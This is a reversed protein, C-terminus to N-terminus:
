THSLSLVFSHLGVCWATPLTGPVFPTRHWLIKHLGNTPDLHPAVKHLWHKAKFYSINAKQFAKKNNYAFLSTEKNSRVKAQETTVCQGVGRKITWGRM